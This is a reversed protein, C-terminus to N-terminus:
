FGLETPVLGFSVMRGFIDVWTTVTTASRKSSATASCHAVMRGIEASVCNYGSPHEPYPPNVVLPTWGPDAVTKPNGDTDALQIATIPRGRAEAIARFTRNWLVVPNETYFLALATQDPTRTSGRAAGLAKVENFERAYAKSKLRHPGRTRLQSPRRLLFPEVNGVGAFPDNVFALPTPRWEGPQTGVAFSFPVYQCPEYGCIM